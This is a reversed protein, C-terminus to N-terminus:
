HAKRRRNLGLGLLGLSLLALSGPEPVSYEIVLSDMWPQSFDQDDWLGASLYYHLYFQGRDAGNNPEGPAWNTYGWTEGTVWAWNATPDIAGAPDTRYGGLWYRELAGSGYETVLSAVFQNEASSTITALHGGMSEALSRAEGWTIPAATTVLDYAHGNASWTVPVAHSSPAAALLGAVLLGITRKRM